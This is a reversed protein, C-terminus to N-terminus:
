DGYQGMNVAYSIVTHPERTPAVSHQSQADRDIDIYTHMASESCIKNIM